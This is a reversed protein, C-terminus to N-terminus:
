NPTAPATLSVTVTANECAVQSGSTDAMTLTAGQLEPLADDTAGEPITDGQWAAAPTVTFWSPDCDPDSTTVTPVITGMAIADSPDDNTVDLTM